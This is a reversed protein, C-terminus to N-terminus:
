RRRRVDSQLTEVLPTAAEILPQMASHFEGRTRAQALSDIVPRIVSLFVVSAPDALISGDEAAELDQRFKPVETKWADAISTPVSVEGVKTMPVNIVQRDGGDASPPGKIVLTAPSGKRGSKESTFDLPSVDNIRFLEALYPAVAADRDLLWQRLPTSRIAALEFGDRDIGSRLIGACMLITENLRKAEDPTESASVDFRPHSFFWNQRTVILDGLQQASAVISRWTIGSTKTAALKALEGAEERYTPPLADFIAIVHGARLQRDITKFRAAIEAAPDIEVLPEAPPPEPLPDPAPAAALEAQVRLTEIREARSKIKSDSLRQAQIRSEARLDSMAVTVRRGDPLALILQDGWLGVMEAEISKTGRLSTWTDARVLSAAAFTAYIAITVAVSRQMAPRLLTQARRPPTMHHLMMRHAYSPLFSSARFVVSENPEM